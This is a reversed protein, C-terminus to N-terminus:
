IYGAVDSLDDENNNLPNISDKLIKDTYVSIYMYLSIVKLRTVPYYKHYPIYYAVSLFFPISESSPNM